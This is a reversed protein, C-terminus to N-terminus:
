FKNVYILSPAQVMHVRSKNRHPARRMPTKPLIHWYCNSNLEGKQIMNFISTKWGWFLFFANNLM